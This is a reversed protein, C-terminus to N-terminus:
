FLLHRQIVMRKPIKVVNDIHDKLNNENVILTIDMDSKDLEQSM